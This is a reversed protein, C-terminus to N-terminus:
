SIDGHLDLGVDFAAANVSSGGGGATAAATATASRWLGEARQSAIAVGGSEQIIRQGTQVLFAGLPAAKAGRANETLWRETGQFM